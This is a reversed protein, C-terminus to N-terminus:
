GGHRRHGRRHLGAIAHRHRARPFPAKRVGLRRARHHGDEQPRLRRFRGLRVRRRALLPVGCGARERHRLLDGNGQRRRRGPVSRRRRLARCRGASRGQRRRVNDTIDLLARIFIRYCEAGERQIKAGPARCNDPRFRGQRRRPRDGHEQREAGEDAGLDRHPLGRSSGVLAVRRAGGHGHAHARGRGAAFVAIEFM